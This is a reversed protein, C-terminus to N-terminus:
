ARLMGWKRLLLIFMLTVAACLGWFFWFGMPWNYAGISSFNTGFM